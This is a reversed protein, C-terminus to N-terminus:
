KEKKAHYRARRQANIKERNDERYKRMYAAKKELWEPDECKREERYKRHRASEKERNKERYKRNRANEKERNKERYKRNRAREKERNKEYYKRSHAAKKKRMCDDCFEKQPVYVFINDCTECITLKNLSILRKIEEFTEESIDDM